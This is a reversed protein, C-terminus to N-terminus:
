NETDNENYEDSIPQKEITEKAHGLLPVGIELEMTKKTIKFGNKVCHGPVHVYKTVFGYRRRTTYPSVWHYDLPCRSDLMKNKREIMNNGEM